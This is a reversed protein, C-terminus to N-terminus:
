AKVYSDEMVIKEFKEYIFDQKLKHIFKRDQFNRYLAVLIGGIDLKKFDKSAYLYALNACSSMMNSYTLIKKTRVEYFKLDKEGDGDFFMFHAYGIISNILLAIGASRFVSFIDVNFKLVLQQQIDPSLTSICPM